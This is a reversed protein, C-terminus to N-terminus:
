GRWRGFQTVVLHLGEFAWTGSSSLWVCCWMSRARPWGVESRGASWVGYSSIYQAYDSGAFDATIALKGNACAEEATDGPVIRWNVAASGAAMIGHIQQIMGYTTADGLRVPGILLHSDTSDTDFPWFQERATDYFWDPDATLNIYVGRDAHYYDLVCDSDSVGTLDEPIKDESLAQLGSGDAGVSYLGHSSMFYVTDHNVCWASAGIIGVQDSVRRLAGTTPDGTLVWTETATFCLLYRDKHPIVAVVDDGTEDAEALQFLMPRSPDSIDVSLTTDTSDGTRAATIIAGSFTIARDRYVPDEKEVAARGTFSGGRLRNTLSDELRCNMSWPTPYEVASYQREQSFRRVVGMAPFRLSITRPKPM